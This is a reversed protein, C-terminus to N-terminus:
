FLNKQEYSLIAFDSPLDVGFQDSVHKFVELRQKPTKGGSKMEKMAVRLYSALDGIPIDRFDPPQAGPMTYYGNERIAPLVDHTVWHKFNRATQIKSSLILSYLGPENIVWLEQVGGSTPIPYKMRDEEEVHRVIAKHTESYKLIGAVDKGIFYPEGNIVTTRVEGFKNNKFIQLKTM